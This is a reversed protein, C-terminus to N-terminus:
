LTDFTSNFQVEITEKNKVLHPPAIEKASPLSPLGPTLIAQFFQPPRVDCGVAGLPTGGWFGDFKM